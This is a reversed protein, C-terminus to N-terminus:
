VWLARVPISCARIESHEGFVRFPDLEAEEIVESELCAKSQRLYCAKDMVAVNRIDVRAMPVTEPDM